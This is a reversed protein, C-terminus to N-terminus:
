RKSTEIENKLCQNEKELMRIREHLIEAADNKHARGDGLKTNIFTKFDNNASVNKKLEQRLLDIQHKFYTTDKLSLHEMTPTKPLMPSAPSLIDTAIPILVKGDSAELFASKNVVQVIKDTM